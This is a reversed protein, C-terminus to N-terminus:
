SGTMLVNKGLQENLQAAAEDLAGWREADTKGWLTPQTDLRELNFMAIRIQRVPRFANQMCDRFMAELSTNIVSNLFQPHQYRHSTGVETFDNFRVALSIERAQMQERRLQGVIRISESLTFMLAAEYDHEDQPLTTSSSITTRDKVELILPENWQGNAFLWLEQGWIGFKQRLLMSPLKAVHDFTLAGLAALSRQRNKGIGSLERVPRDKLFEKEESQPVEMFGPKAVDTALKALKSSNALGGSVPLDIEKRIRDGVAGGADDQGVVVGFAAEIGGRGVDSDGALYFMGPFYDADMEEVVDDEVGGGVEAEELLPLQSFQGGRVLEDL